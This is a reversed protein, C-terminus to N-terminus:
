FETLKSFKMSSKQNFKFMFRPGGFQGHRSQRTITHLLQM